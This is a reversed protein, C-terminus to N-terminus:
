DAVIGTEGDAIQEILGGVPTVVCPLGAGLAAAVVGSQSAEIHSAVLADYRLLADGVEQDSLRRNLLTVGMEAMRQAHSEIPGEGFGGPCVAIGEARLRAVTDLFLSLGKYPMIRGLFLLRLPTGRAPSQRQIHPGAFHLDPHFLTSLRDPHMRGSALLR